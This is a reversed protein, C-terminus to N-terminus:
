DTTLEYCHQEFLTFHVKGTHYTSTHEQTGINKPLVLTSSICWTGRKAWVGASFILIPSFLTMYEYGPYFSIQIFFLIFHLTLGAKCSSFLLMQRSKDVPM